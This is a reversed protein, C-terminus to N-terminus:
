FHIMLGFILMVMLARSACIQRKYWWEKGTIWYCAKAQTDYYPDSIIGHKLLASNIDGPVDISMWEGSNLNPRKINEKTAPQPAQGLFMWRDNLFLKEM